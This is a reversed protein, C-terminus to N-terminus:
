NKVIIGQGSPVILINFGMKKSLNNIYYSQRERGIYAFDDLIIIGGNSINKWFTKLSFVEAEAYNLDLHLMSIKLKKYKILTKFVDGKVFHVRKFNKFNEKTHEFSKAYYKSKKSTTKGFEDVKFSSFTDFLYLNKKEKNWNKFSNLLCLMSFGIGTGIEVIDGPIKQVNKAAWIIQHIRFHINPDFGITECSKYYSRQFERDKLFLVNHSTCFQDGVYNYLIKRVLNKIM